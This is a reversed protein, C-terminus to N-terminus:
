PLHCNEATYAPDFFLTGPELLLELDRPMGVENVSQSLFASIRAQRHEHSM